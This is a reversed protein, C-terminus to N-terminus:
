VEHFSRFLRIGLLSLSFQLKVMHYVNPLLEIHHKNLHKLNRGVRKKKIKQKPLKVPTRELWLLLAHKIQFFMRSLHFYKLWNSLKVERRVYIIGRGPLLNIPIQMSNKILLFLTISINLSFCFSFVFITGLINKGIFTFCHMSFFGSAFISFHQM